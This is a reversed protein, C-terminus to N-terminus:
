KKKKAEIEAVLKPFDERARIPGFAVNNKLDFANAYGLEIAKRLLEVSQDGYTKGLEKREDESLKADEAALRACWSLYGGARHYDQWRNPFVTPLEVAHKAAAAHDKLKLLCLKSLGEYHNWLFQKYKANDPDLKLSRLQYEISHEALARIENM